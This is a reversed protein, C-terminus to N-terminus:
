RSHSMPRTLTPRLRGLERAAGFGVLGALQDDRVYGIVSGRIQGGSLAEGELPVVHDADDTHGVVQIKIGFQDSWVYPPKDTPPLVEMISHAVVSAQVTASTWHERRRFTGTDDQWAAVDGVAWVDTLGLVRGSGDCRIGDALDLGPRALWGVDPVGGIGVVTVDAGISTGDALHIETADSSPDSFGTVQANTRLDVGAERMLRACIDGVGAGLTRAFPTAASELVTVAMGRKLASSAVEAGVFGSGVVLLSRAQEMAARLRHADDITRLSLASEPQGPLRRAIVGTALVISDASWVTGDTTEVEGTRLACVRQGPVLEVGLAEFDAPARLSLQHAQWAGTLLQKSLPPRDYPLHIEEGVMTIRGTHGLDRVHEAVRLGALGAGVVLVDSRAATNM